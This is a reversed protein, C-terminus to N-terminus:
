VSLRGCHLESFRDTKTSISPWLCVFLGAPICAHLVEVYFITM